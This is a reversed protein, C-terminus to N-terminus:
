PRETKPLQRVKVRTETVTYLRGPTLRKYRTFLRDVADDQEVAGGQLQLFVLSRGFRVPSEYLDNVIKGDATVVDLQKKHATEFVERAPAGDTLGAEAPTQVAHGHRKLAEAVATTLPGHILWRM